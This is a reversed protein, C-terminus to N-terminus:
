RPRLAVIRAGPVLAITHTQGAYALTDAESGFVVAYDYGPAIDELRPPPADNDLRALGALAAFDGRYGLLFPQFPRVFLSSLFASRDIVAWAASHHGLRAWSAHGVLSVVAIRAGEEIQLMAHRLEAQRPAARTRQVQTAVSLLVVGAGIAAHIRWRNRLSCRPLDITAWFTLMVALTMRMDVLNSGFGSPPLLLATCGMALVIRMGAPELSASRARLACYLFLLLPIAVLMTAAPHTYFAFRPMLAALVIKYFAIGALSADGTTPMPRNAGPEYVSLHILLAPLVQAALVVLLSWRSRPAGQGHSRTWGHALLGLLYVALGALHCLYLLTAGLSFASVMLAGTAGRRQAVIWAALLWLAAGVALVFNFLGLQFFANHAFLLSGLALVTVRGHLARGLAVTGTALVLTCLSGFLKLATELGTLRALLPVAVDMAMNPFLGPTAVYYTRLTPSSDLHMLVHLRALHNPFDLIDVYRVSYLPLQTVLFLLAFWAIFGPPTRDPSPRMTTDNM